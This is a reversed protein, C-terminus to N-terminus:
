RRSSAYFISAYVSKIAKSLLRLQQDENDTRPIMYTSYVGAFPQYYSDELKSSSRVALPKRVKHIFVKLADTLEQPLTSAVFESLIEADSIDSRQITLTYKNSGSANNIIDHGWTLKIKSEDNPDVTATENHFSWSREVKHDKAGSTLESLRNNDSPILAVEYSYEVDWDPAQVKADSKSFSLNSAICERESVKGKPYRYISWTGSKNSNGTKGAYNWEM